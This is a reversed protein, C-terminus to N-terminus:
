ELSYISRLKDTTKIHLMLGIKDNEVYRASCINTPPRFM